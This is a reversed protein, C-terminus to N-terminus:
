LNDDTNNHCRVPEQLLAPWQEEWGKGHSAGSAITMKLCTSQGAARSFSKYLAATIIKDDSGIFHHQPIDAIHRAIDVPNLSEPMASVKHIQNFHEHDLNGAVTRISAIDNRHSALLLAVAAGGSFGVLHFQKINHRAKINELATNAAQIVEPAFRHSTWYPRTCFSDPGIPSYQCPRALYVVNAAPDRAALKLAVPNKPTPNLSPTRRNVWALGDGEIYLTATKQDNGSSIREFSTLVFPAANIERKIMHASAAINEALTVRDGISTTLCASLLCLAAFAILTLLAKKIATFIVKLRGKLM